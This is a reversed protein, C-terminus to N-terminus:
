KIQILDKFALFDAHNTGPMICTVTEDVPVGGVTVTLSKGVAVKLIVPYLKSAVDVYPILYILVRDNTLKRRYAWAAITIAKGTEDYGTIDLTYKAGSAANLASAAHSLIVVPTAGVGGTFDADTWSFVIDAGVSVTAKQKALYPYTTQYRTISAFVNQGEMPVATPPADVAGNVSLFPLLQNQSIRSGPTADMNAIKNAEASLAANVVPAPVTAAASSPKLLLKPAALMQIPARLPATLVDAVKGLVSKSQFNKKMGALNDRLNQFIGGEGPAGGYINDDVFRVDLYQSDNLPDGDLDSLTGPVKVIEVLDGLLLPNYRYVEAGLPDGAYYRPLDGELTTTKSQRSFVNFLISPLMLLFMFLKKM